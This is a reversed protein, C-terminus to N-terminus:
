RNKRRMGALVVLSSIGLLMFTSPEPIAGALIPTNPTSEYAWGLVMAYPYSWHGQVEIWGYRSAPDIEFEIGIYTRLGPPSRLDWPPGWAAPTNWFQGARGTDYEEMLTAWGTHNFWDLGNNNSDPGILSGEGLAAVEGGINPPTFYRSVSESHLGVFSYTGSFAFDVVGDGDVDISPSPLPNWWGGIEMPEDLWTLIVAGRCAIACAMMVASFVLTRATTSM